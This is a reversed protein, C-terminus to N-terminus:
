YLAQFMFSSCALPWGPGLGLWASLRPFANMGRRAFRNLTQIDEFAPLAEVSSSTYVPALIQCGAQGGQEGQPATPTGRSM